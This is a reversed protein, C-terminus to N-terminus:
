FSHLGNNAMYLYLRETLGGLVNVIKTAELILVPHISPHSKVTYRKTAKSNGVM